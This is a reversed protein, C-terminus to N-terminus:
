ERDITKRARVFCIPLFKEREFKEIGFGASLLASSLEETTISVHGFYRNFLFNRRAIIAEEFSYIGGHKLIRNIEGLATRWEPVHDYVFFHFAADFSSSEFDLNTADGEIFEIGASSISRAWHPPNRIHRKAKQIMDPDIDLSILKGCGTYQKILLAGAGNGCGIELCVKGELPPLGSLVRPAENTRLLYERLPNNLLLKELLRLKM